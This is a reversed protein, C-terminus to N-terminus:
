EMLTIFLINLKGWLSHIRSFFLIGILFFRKVTQSNSDYVGLVGKTFWINTPHNVEQPGAGKKCLHKVHRKKKIDILSLHTKHYYDLILIKSDSVPLLLCPNGIEDMNELQIEKGVVHFERVMEDCSKNKDHCAAIFFLVTFVCILRNYRMYGNHM